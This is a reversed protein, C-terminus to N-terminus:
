AMCLWMFLTCTSVHEGKGQGGPAASSLVWIPPCQSKAKLEPDSKLNYNGQSPPFIHVGFSFLGSNYGGDAQQACRPYLSGKELISSVASRKLISLVAGRQVCTSLVKHSNWLIWETDSMYNTRLLHLPLKKKVKYGFAPRFSPGSSSLALILTNVATDSKLKLCVEQFM